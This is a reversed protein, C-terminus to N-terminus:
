KMKKWEEWFRPYSKAVVEPQEIELNYLISLPAFSMAMRHDEYTRILYKEQYSPTTPAQLLWNGNSQESFDFGFKRVEKQLAELRNTEKIKLSEVGKALLNTNKGVCLAVITQALDPCDTFDIEIMEKQNNETKVIRVGQAEFYTKVGFINMIEVIAKDGQLSNKRLHPLFIEARECLSAVSYWYSAASWDSEIIYDKLTYFQPAIAITNHEWRYRIGFHYMLDLTMQIYPKSSVKNILTIELGKELFPAIMLLASIYQSSINSEVAIKNKSQRFGLIEVPPYGEKKAYAIDAGITRLAEVLIGIPREQMRETGTLLVKRNTVACFATLFRMTTGADLVDLVAEEANLLKQLTQTDRAESINEIQYVQQDKNQKKALAEILLVRNSESKSAPLYFTQQINKSSDALYM